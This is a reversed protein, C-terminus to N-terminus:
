TAYSHLLRISVHRKKGFGLPTVVVDFGPSSWPWSVWLLLNCSLCVRSSESVGDAERHHNQWFLWLWDPVMQLHQLSRCSVQRLDAAPDSGGRQGQEGYSHRVWRHWVCVARELRAPPRVKSSSLVAYSICLPIAFSLRPFIFSSSFFLHHVPHILSLTLSSSVAPYQTIDTSYM